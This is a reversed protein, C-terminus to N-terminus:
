GIVHVLMWFLHFCLLLRTNFHMLKMNWIRQMWYILLPIAIICCLDSTFLSTILFPSSAMQVM